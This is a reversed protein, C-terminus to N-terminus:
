FDGAPTTTAGVIPAATVQVLAADLAGNSATAGSQTTVPLPNPQAASGLQTITADALTPQGDRLETTGLVRVRTGANVNGSVVRIARIAGTSDAVHVTSDGFVNLGNLTVGEVFVRRGPPLARAAKVSLNAFSLTVLVGVSDAAPVRVHVSDIRVVRLSDPVSTSDVRVQYDGVPLNRIEFAGLANTSASAVTTGGSLAALQVRVNPQPGDGPLDLVGNGNRDVYAVGIVAGTADINLLRDAANEDCAVASLLSVAAILTSLTSRM